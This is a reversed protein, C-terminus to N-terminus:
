SAAGFVLMNTMREPSRIGERAMWEEARRRLDGTRAADAVLTAARWRAAAAYGNMPVLDFEDAAKELRSVAGEGDGELEACGARLLMALPRAWAVREQELEKASRRVTGLLAARDTAGRAAMLAGRGQLSSIFVRLVQITNFFGARIWGRKATMRELARRGDGTYLDIYARSMLGTMHQLHYGDIGWLKLYEDVARAAGEADDEVLRAHPVMFAGLTTLAYRDGRDGAEKILSATRLSMANLDGSYIRAWLEFTHSTDLEWAVGTCRSRFIEQAEELRERASTWRGMTFEAIGTSLAAMGHAHPHDISNAIAKAEALLRSTRPWSPAGANSTHAAEWALARAVRYPEGISLAHYLNRSQFEAGQLVDFMSLGASAAWTLDSRVLDRPPVLNEARPSFRLGRLRLRGRQLLLRAISSARADPMPVNIGGLLTRLTSRGQELHGSICYQYAARRQLDQAQDPLAGTTASLYNTAAEPGRGDNALADALRVRLTRADDESLTQLDLAKAYLSSAREFALIDAAGDAALAYYHGARDRVEGGEFHLALTEPDFIKAAELSVAVRRHHDRAAHPPLHAAVAERIRDHYPEVWDYNGSGTTRVFHATRLVRLAARDEVGIGAADTLAQRTIPHGCISVVELVSRAAAPLTAVRRRILEDLDAEAAQASPVQDTSHRALEHIFFPIGSSERAIATARAEADGIGPPLLARALNVAQDPALPEVNVHQTLVEQNTVYAQRLTKVCVSKDVYESRYACLLLLVPPDPPRLLDALLAASDADGWQLDDVHLILPRRDGIRGLLERLGRFARRRMEQQDLIRSEPRDEGTLESVQRLVPFVKTLAVADRPVIVAREAPSLEKLFQALSDILSDLAKYPVSEDEYCRGALVVAGPIGRTETLFHRILFSKGAGSRGQVFVAAPAGKRVHLLLDRLAWVQQERGVLLEDGRLREPADTSGLRALIDKGSPRRAPDRQLLEACLTCLDDPLSPDISTLSPADGEQKLRIVEANGRTGDFPLQGALAQFLMVGVAYWDAAPTLQGSAAQEPAMYSVTGLVQLDRGASTTGSIATVLGFDLLVTRGSRDVMVNSPKIDRHLTDNAHLAALAGALQALSARLRVIQGPQIIPSTDVNAPGARHGGTAVSQDSTEEDGSSSSPPASSAENGRVYSLFDVGDVYEMALWWADEIAFLEYLSALHPHSIDVLSRFEQKFRYLAAPDARPLSKLAVAAGNASDFAKYVVGMGGRGLLGAIQYRGVTQGIVSM